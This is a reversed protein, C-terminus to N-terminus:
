GGVCAEQKKESMVQISEFLRLCLTTLEAVECINSSPTNSSTGPTIKSSVLKHSPCDNYKASEFEQELLSNEYTVINYHLYILLYPYVNIAVFFADISIPM